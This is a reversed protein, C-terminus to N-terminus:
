ATRIFDFNFIATTGLDNLYVDLNITVTTSTTTITLDKLTVLPYDNVVTTVENRIERELILDDPEYLYYRLNSGFDLMKVREGPLTNFTAWLDNWVLDEDIVTMNKTIDFDSRIGRYTTM